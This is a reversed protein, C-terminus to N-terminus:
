KGKKAVERRLQDKLEARRPRYASESIEGSRYLDDLTIIADLIDQESEAPIEATHLRMDRTKFILWSIIAILSLM